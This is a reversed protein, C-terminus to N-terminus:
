GKADMNLPMFLSRRGTQERDVQRRKRSIVSINALPMAEWVPTKLLARKENADWAPLFSHCVRLVDAHSARKKDRGM